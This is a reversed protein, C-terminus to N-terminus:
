GSWKELDLDVQELDLLNMGASQWNNGSIPMKEITERFAHARSTWGSRSFGLFYVRWKGQPLVIQDAKM